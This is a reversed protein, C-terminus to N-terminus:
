RDQIVPLRARPSWEYRGGRQEFKEPSFGAQQLARAVGVQLIPDSTVHRMGTNGYFRGLPDLMIYSDIMADNDEAVAPYGEGALHAHRDLFASFQQGTILLDEVDGDNEGEVRLVQFVKWREPRIRRVLESLDELWNLSTVVSNLKVRVGLERCRDSLALARQVYNGRGRGLAVETEESGSDVSLAVWDISTAHLNLLESLRSGNTVIATVFGITKAHAVLEGIHPHLTPEGGAFTIKEAGADRLLRLLKCADALPLYGRVDRFTAFCFRCRSDCPKFLHFNVATIQSTM